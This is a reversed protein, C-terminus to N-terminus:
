LIHPIRQKAHLHQAMLSSFLIYKLIVKCSHYNNKYYNTMMRTPHSSFKRDRDKTNNLLPIYDFIMNQHIDWLLGQVKKSVYSLSWHCDMIINNDM